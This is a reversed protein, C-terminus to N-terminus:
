PRSGEQMVSNCVRALAPIDELMSLAAFHNRGGVYDKRGNCTRILIGSDARTAPQCLQVYLHEHHLTVEGSVAIGGTNSRIDFSDTTFNLAKALTRLRQKGTSHFCRKQVDDYACHKYWDM